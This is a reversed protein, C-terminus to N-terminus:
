RTPLSKEAYINLLRAPDIQELILVFEEGDRNFTEQRRLRRGQADFEQTFTGTPATTELTWGGTDPNQTCLDRRKRIGNGRAKSRDLIYWDATFGEIGAKSLLRGLIYPEAVAIFPAPAMPADLSDQQGESDIITITSRPQPATRIGSEGSTSGVNTEIRKTGSEVVTRPTMAMTWQERSRDLALWHRREVDVTVSTAPYDAVVEGAIIVLLGQEESEGDDGVPSGINVAGLPALRTSIQQWSIERERGDPGREYIRYFETAGEEAVSKLVDPTFQELIAAGADIRSTQTRVREEEPEIRIADFLENIRERVGDDFYRKSTFISGYLFANQNILNVSFGSVGLARDSSGNTPEESAAMPFTLYILEGPLAPADNRGEVKLKLETRDFIRATPDNSQVLTVIDEIRSYPTEGFQGVPVKQLSMRWKSPTGADQLQLIVQAGAKLEDVKVDPGIPYHLGLAESYARVPGTSARDDEQLSIGEGASTETTRIPGQDEGNVQSFGVILTMLCAPLRLAHTIPHGIVMLGTM